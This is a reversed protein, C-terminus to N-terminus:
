SEVAEWELVTTERIVDDDALSKRTLQQNAEIILKFAEKLNERVEDLTKGQTNVGPIEEIYGIYWDGSKQIVTTFEGKM